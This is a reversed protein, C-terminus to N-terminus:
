PDNQQQTEAGDEPWATRELAKWAQSSFRWIRLQKPGIRPFARVAGVMAMLRSLEDRTVKRPDYSLERQLVGRGIAYGGDGLLTASGNADPTMGDDSKSPRAHELQEMVAQAVIAIRDIERDGQRVESSAMLTTFLDNDWAKTFSMPLGVGAQAVAAKRIQYGSVIQEADLILCGGCQEFSTHHLELTVPDGLVRVIKFGKNTPPKGENEVQQDVNPKAFEQFDEEARRHIESKLISAVTRRVEAEALPEALNANWIMAQSVLLEVAERGNARRLNHAWKGVLSALTTNRSGPSAGAVMNVWEDISKGVKEAGTVGGGLLNHLWSVFSDPLEAVECEEPSLGPLWEYGKSPPALSHTGKDGAGLKLDIDLGALRRLDIHARDPLDDRWRFLRHPTKRNGSLYTPTIPWEGGMALDRLKDGDSATDCDIDVVGSSPGFVISVGAGAHGNSWWELVQDEDKSALKQWEKLPPHKTKLDCPIVRWGYSAYLMAAEITNSSSNDSMMGDWRGNPNDM